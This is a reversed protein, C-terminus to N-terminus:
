LANHGFGPPATEKTSNSFKGCRHLYGLALKKFSADREKLLL